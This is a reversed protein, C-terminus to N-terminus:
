EWPAEKALRQLARLKEMPRGSDLVSRAVQVGEEVSPARGAVWIATGSTLLVAGRVSGPAGSLVEEATRAAQSPPVPDWPGRREAPLLLEEPRVEFTEERERTATVVWSSVQPSIEDSGDSGHAAGVREAGLDRLVRTALHAYERSFSGVVQRRVGAPNTLPGLLNFVTRVGLAKRVPAVRRMAPHYLPAHLFAIRERRYSEEAFKRSTRIPLGLAELFDSSGCPGRASSNGHKAVPIGTAAVVFASLTSVNFTPRPAGGTGCLDIAEPAGAGFPTALERFVRAFAGVEVETEGKAALATLLAACELDTYSGRVIGEALSRAAEERLSQRAVLSRLLEPAPIEPPAPDERGDSPAATM